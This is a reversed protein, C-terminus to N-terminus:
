KLTIKCTPITNLALDESLPKRFWKFPNKQLTPIANLTSEENLNSIGPSISVEVL